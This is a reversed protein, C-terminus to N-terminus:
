NNKFILIIYFDKKEIFKKNYNYYLDIKILNNILVKLDSTILCVTEGFSKDFCKRSFQDLITCIKFNNHYVM